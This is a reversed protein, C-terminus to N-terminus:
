ACHKTDERFMTLTIKTRSYVFLIGPKKNIRIEENSIRKLIRYKKPIIAFTTTRPVRVLAPTPQFNYSGFGTPENHHAPPTTQSHRTILSM